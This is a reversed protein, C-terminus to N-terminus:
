HPYVFNLWDQEPQLDFHVGDSCVMGAAVELLNLFSLSNSHLRSDDNKLHIVRKKIEIGNQDSPM